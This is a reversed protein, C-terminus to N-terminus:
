PNINTLISTLSVTRVPTGWEVSVTVYRSGSDVSGSSVIDDDSDREVDELSFSRTFRGIVEPTATTTIDSTQIDLYYDVGISLSSINTWDNDRIFRVLEQGEEALYLAQTEDAVEHSSNIFRV